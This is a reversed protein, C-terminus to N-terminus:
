AVARAKTSFAEELEPIDLVLVVEGNGLVAGGAVCPIDSMLRGMSKIVMEQQNLLQDVLIGFPRDPQGVVVVFMKEQKRKRDSSDQSKLQHIYDAMTDKKNALKLEDGLHMLPLVKNRLKIVESDGVKQIEDPAIRISEIVSGLPIAFIESKVRVLLSQVIALTLPLRITITSGKGQESDVELMGKLKMIQKKVVDMGVGRGSVNTVKEATSFGPEFILNFIERNTLKDDESILGKEIGKKRIIDAPIGKGDDEIVIVIHNGEQHASLWINGTPNKGAKKRDEPLEVGHDCSNRILHILPDGIQEVLTKDMEATEGSIQLDIKKGLSKALDRVIRPYKNFANGIPVMRVKMIIDQIENMHRGFLQVTESINGSLKVNPHNTRLEEEITVFRTRDIVLEGVLNVLADLRNLDVRITSSEKKKEKSTAGQKADGGGADGGGADAPAATETQSAGASSEIAKGEAVLSLKIVIPATKIGCPAGKKTASLLEKVIDLGEFMVDMTDSNPSLKGKRILDFLNEMRHMVRELGTFGFMGAAGKLTHAARFIEEIIEKNNPDQELNLLQEDLVDMIEESNQNFDDIMDPDTQFDNAEWEDIEEVNDALSAGKSAAEKKAEPAAKPEEEEEEDDAGGLGALLASAEDEASMDEQPASEKEAADSSPSDMAALMKQAEDDSMEDNSPTDGSDSATDGDMAALMKQAEDDSMEDNSPADGGDSAADGDMAALMKQADDDSMEDSSADDSGDMGALMKKADDDSMKENADAAKDEAVADGLPTDDGEMMALMADADADDEALDKGGDIAEGAEALLANAEDAELEENAQISASGKGTWAHVINLLDMSESLAAELDPMAAKDEGKSAVLGELNKKLNPLVKELLSKLAQNTLADMGM